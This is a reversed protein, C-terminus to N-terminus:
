GPKHPQHAGAPPALQIPIHERAPRLTSTVVVRDSPVSASYQQSVSTAPKTSCAYAAGSVRSASCWTVVVVDGFSAPDADRARQEPELLSWLTAADREILECLGHFSAEDRDNGSALGNTHQCLLPLDDRVGSMGVRELPILIERGDRLRRGAVWAIEREPDLTEGLPLSRWPDFWM